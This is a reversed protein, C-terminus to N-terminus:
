RARGTIAALVQALAQPDIAGHVRLVDGASTALEWAPREVCAAEEAIGVTVLRPAEEGAGDDAALRWRWWALSKVSLGHQEAFARTGLGSRRWQAVM